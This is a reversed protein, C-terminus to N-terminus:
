ATGEPPPSALGIKAFVDRDEELLNALALANCCAGFAGLKRLRDALAQARKRRQEFLDSLMKALRADSALVIDNVPGGM